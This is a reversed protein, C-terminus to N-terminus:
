FTQVDNSIWTATEQHKQWNAHIKKFTKPAHRYPINPLRNSHKRTEVCVRVCLGNAHQRQPIRERFPPADDDFQPRLTCLSRKSTQPLWNKLLLKREENQRPKPLRRSRRSSVCSLSAWVLYLKGIQKTTVAAIAHKLERVVDGLM